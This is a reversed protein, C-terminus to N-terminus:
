RVSVTELIQDPASTASIEIRGPWLRIRRWTGPGRFLAATRVQLLKRQGLTLQEVQDTHRHGCLVLKVQPADRLVNLVMTSREDVALPIHLAIIAPQQRHKRLERALWKMQQEFFPKGGSEFAHGNDLVILRYGAISTAYYTRHRWRRRADTAVSQDDLASGPRAPDRRYCEVDHNGLALHYKHRLRKLTRRVAEIQGYVPPGAAADFCVADVIDGTHVITSKPLRNAADVFQELVALSNANTKRAAALDPHVGAFAIIHSDSIHILDTQASASACLLLALTLRM